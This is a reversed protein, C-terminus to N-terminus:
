RAEEEGGRAARIWRTALLPWLAVVGPYILLRFVISTGEASHDVRGVGATVFIAGFLLGVSAYAGAISVIIWAIRM